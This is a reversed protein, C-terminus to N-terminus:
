KKETLAKAVAPYGSQLQPILGVSLLRFSEEGAKGQINLLGKVRFGPKKKGLSWFLLRALRLDCDSVVRWGAGARSATFSLDVDVEAIGALKLTAGLQGKSRDGSQRRFWASVAGSLAGLSRFSGLEAHVDELKAPISDTKTPTVDTKPEEVKSEGASSGKAPTQAASSDEVTKKPEEKAKTPTKKGPITLMQGVRLASPNALHNAAAIEPYRHGDGYYREAIGWLTEGSRVRHRLTTSGSSEAQTSGGSSTSTDTSKGAGVATPKRRSQWGLVARGAWPKVTYKGGSKKVGLSDKASWTNQQIINVGSTSGSTCVAVHGYKGGGIVLIDGDDPIYAGSGNEVWHLGKRGSGAYDIANGTGRMNGIGLAEVAFRNVYEVCQYKHGYTGSEYYSSGGGGNSYAVVGRHSGLVKGWGKPRSSGGSGGSGMGDREQQRGAIEEQM